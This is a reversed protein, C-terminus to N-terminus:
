PIPTGTPLDHFGHLRSDAVAGSAYIATCPVTYAVDIHDIHPIHPGPGVANIIVTAAVVSVLGLSFLSQTNM